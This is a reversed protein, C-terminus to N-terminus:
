GLRFRNSRLGGCQDRDPRRDRQEAPGLVCRLESIASPDVGPTSWFATAVMGNPSCEITLSMPEPLPTSTSTATHTHTSTSVPRVCTAYDTWLSRLVMPATGYEALLRAQLTFAETGDVSFEYELLRFTEGTMPAPIELQFGLGNSAEIRYTTFDLELYSADSQEWRLLVRTSSDLFTCDMTFGTPLPAPITTPTRTNTPTYTDGPITM